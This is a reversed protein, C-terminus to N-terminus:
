NFKSYKRSMTVVDTEVATLDEAMLSTNRRNDKATKILQGIAEMLKRERVYRDRQNQRTAALNDASILAAGKSWVDIVCNVNFGKELTLETDEEPMQVPELEVDNLMCADEDQAGLVEDSTQVGAEEEIADRDDDTMDKTSISEREIICQRLSSLIKDSTYERTDVMRSEVSELKLKTVLRTSCEKILNSGFERENSLVDTRMKAFLEYIIQQQPKDVKKSASRPPKRKKLPRITYFEVIASKAKKNFLSGLLRDRTKTSVHAGWYTLCDFATTGVSWAMLAVSEVMSWWVLLKPNRQRFNTMIQHLVQREKGAILNSQRKKNPNIDRLSALESWLRPFGKKVGAIWDNYHDQTILPAHQDIWGSSAKQFVVRCDENIKNMISTEGEAIAEVNTLPPVNDKESEELKLLANNEAFLYANMMAYSSLTDGAVERTM